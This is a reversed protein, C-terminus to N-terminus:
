AADPGALRAFDAVSLQEARAGPDLGAAVIAEAEVTGALANRLTKRRQGFAARVIAAFRARDRIGVADAARPVLRVVASDVKPAPRFAGPPVTFLPTVTCYAQLMVSLRGYVKSGPPAAIREVVEKQLMFHMDRIAAAHDLAHFLIPSSLNYPLNGVLRIRGGGALATFDVDLVDGEVLALEGHARAAALLPAHLDRDFEIATLAGHRDLLPFTLAGQGPGIEVIADGPKPDIARVIRDIVGREHLFNQGLHKKAERRFGDTDKSEPAERRRGPRVSPPHSV